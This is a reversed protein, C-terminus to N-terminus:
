KIISKVQLGTGDVFIRAVKDPMHTTVQNTKTEEWGILRYNADLRRVRQLQWCVLNNSTDWSIFERLGTGDKCGRMKLKMGPKLFTKLGTVLRNLKLEYAEEEMRRNELWKEHAAIEALRRPDRATAESQCWNALAVLEDHAFDRLQNTINTLKM